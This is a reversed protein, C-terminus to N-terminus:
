GMGCPGCDRPIDVAEPLQLKPGRGQVQPIPTRDTAEPILMAPHDVPQRRREAVVPITAVGTAPAAVPQTREAPTATRTPSLRPAVLIALVALAVLAATLLPRTM